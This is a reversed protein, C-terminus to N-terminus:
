SGPAETALPLIEKMSDVRLGAYEVTRLVPGDPGWEIDHGVGYATAAEVQVRTGLPLGVLKLAIEGSAYIHMYEGNSLRVRDRIASGPALKLSECEDPDARSFRSIEFTVSVKRGQMLKPLLDFQRIVETSDERADSRVNEDVSAGISRLMEPVDHMVKAALDTPTTFLSVIHRRRLQDKLRKLAEAGPGTEVFKPLVPQNDEDILYILSPLVRRLAEEYELHTMSLELNEPVSGYRMGFLGIYARCSRVVALCEDVPSGPKSGFYEMGRVVAELSALADFVARRYEKMDDFTSGVFIPVHQRPEALAM